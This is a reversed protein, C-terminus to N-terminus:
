SRIGAEAVLQLLGHAEADRRSLLRQLPGRGVGRGAM